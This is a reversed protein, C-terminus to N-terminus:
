QICTKVKRAGKKRLAASHKKILERAALNIEDRSIRSWDTSSKPYDKELAIRSVDRVVCYNAFAHPSKRNPEAMSMFAILAKRHIRKAAFLEALKARYELDIQELKPFRKYDSFHQAEHTLFSVRFKESKLNYANSNCYLGDRKAWGGPYYVGITAFDMWGKVIFKQLLVTKVTEKTDPLQVSYKKTKENKWIELEHIPEVTGTICNYGQKEVIDKLRKCYYDDNFKKKFSFGHINALSSVNKHLWTQAVKGSKENLLCQFWYDQYINILQKVFPNKSQYRKPERKEFRERFIRVFEKEKKTLGNTKLKKVLPIAEKVRGQIGLNLIQQFKSNKKINGM